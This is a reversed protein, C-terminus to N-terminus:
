ELVHIGSVSAVLTLCCLLFHKACIYSIAVDERAALLWLGALLQAGSCHLRARPLLMLWRPQPAALCRGEERWRLQSGSLLTAGPVDNAM